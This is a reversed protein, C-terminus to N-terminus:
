LYVTGTPRGPDYHCHREVHTVHKPSLPRRTTPTLRLDGKRGLKLLRRLFPRASVRMDYAIHLRTIKHAGAGFPFLFESLASADRLVQLAVGSLSVILVQRREYLKITGGDGIRILEPTVSFGGLSATFDQVHSLIEDARDLPVTLGLYDAFM